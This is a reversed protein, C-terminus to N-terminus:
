AGPAHIIYMKLITGILFCIVDFILVGVLQWRKAIRLFAGTFLVIVFTFAYDGFGIIQQGILALTLGVVFGSFVKVMFTFISFSSNKLRYQMNEMFQSM